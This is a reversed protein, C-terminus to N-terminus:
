RLGGLDGTLAEPALGSQLALGLAIRWPQASPPWEGAPRVSPRWVAWVSGAPRM